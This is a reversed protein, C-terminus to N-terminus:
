KKPKITLLTFDMFFWLTRKKVTNLIYKEWLMYIMKQDKVNLLKRDLSFLNKNQTLLAFLFVVFPENLYDNKNLHINGINALFNRVKIKSNNYRKRFVDHKGYQKKKSYTYDWFFFDQYQLDKQLGLNETIGKFNKDVKESQSKTDSYEEGNRTGIKPM